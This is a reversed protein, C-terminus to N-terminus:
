HVSQDRHVVRAEYFLNGGNLIAKAHADARLDRDDPHLSSVLRERTVPESVDWIANFRKSTFITNEELNTEYTGMDASDLALNLRYEAKEIKLKAVNVGTVDTGTKIVGFIKGENNYVPSFSYNFYSKQLIGDVIIDVRENFANFPIGTHFVNKANEFLEHGSLEPLIETYLKGIVNPGKGWIKIIADNALAIRL